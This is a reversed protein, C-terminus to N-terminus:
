CLIVWQNSYDDLVVQFPLAGTLVASAGVGELGDMLSQNIAPQRAILTGRAATSNDAKIPAIM